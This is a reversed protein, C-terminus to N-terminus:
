ELKLEVYPVLLIGIFLLKPLVDPDFLVFQIAM